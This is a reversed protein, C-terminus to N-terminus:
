VTLLTDRPILSKEINPSRPALQAPLVAKILMIMPSRGGEAPSILNNPVLISSISSLVIM